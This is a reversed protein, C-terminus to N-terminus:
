PPKFIRNPLSPHPPYIPIASPGAPRPQAPAPAAKSGHHISSSRGLLVCADEALDLEEMNMKWDDHTSRTTQLRVDPPPPHAACVM